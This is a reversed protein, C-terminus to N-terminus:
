ADVEKLSRACTELAKRFRVSITSEDVGERLAAERGSLGEYVKFLVARRQEEPLRELVRRVREELERRRADQSVGPQTTELAELLGPPWPGTRSGPLDGVDSVSAPQRTSSRSAHLLKNQLIAALWRHLSGPGRHEFRELNRAAEAWVEQLLDDEDCVLRVHDPMRFHLLVRLKSESRRLLQSWALEPEEAIRELVRRTSDAGEAPIDRAAAGPSTRM